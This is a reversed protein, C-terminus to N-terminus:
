QAIFNYVIVGVVKVKQGSLTTPSFKSARAAAEASPRLLPHGSMASAWVVNGNEDITVKVQVAGSAGVAKAAPPYAPKVLSTAKGNVVGGQVIKPPTPTTPNPTSPTPTPPTPTSPTPTIPTPTIPTPTTKNNNATQTRSPSPKGNTNTLVTSNTNDGFPIITSNANDGFTNASSNTNTPDADTSFLNKNVASNNTNALAVEDNGSMQLYIFGGIATGMLALVGLVAGIILGNNSKPQDLFTEFKPENTPPAVALTETESVKEATHVFNMTETPLSVIEPLVLTKEGMAIEKEELVIETPSSIIEPMVLTKEGVAIEKAEIAQTVEPEIPKVELVETVDSTSGLITLPTGDQLCFSMEYEYQANCKPCVKM